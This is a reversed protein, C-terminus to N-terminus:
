GVQRKATLRARLGELPLANVVHRAEVWGRRATGVAFLMHRGLLDARHCDGDVSVLAGAAIARRAMAGDMDLHGPAGDIELVTGTEVAADFLRPEDLAYGERGPVLRNTPHTVIQVFPNRMARIYRDTLEASSHGAMDHLSALVVDLRELVADPFDLSGDPLIDVESGQLITLAPHQERAAAVAEMQRQLRDVDLGRAIASSQSHDTIAVYEYGLAEAALLMTELPDRGDSWDTHMHLDGRIQEHGILRPLERRAAAEVEGAGERLEPAVPALDLAAYLDAESPIARARGEADVLADRTLTLGLSAARQRVQSVHAASGTLCVLRAVFSEPPVIHLTLEAQEFRVAVKDRAVHLVASIFPLALLDAITRSVDRSAVLVELNGTVAAFRRFSGTAVIREIGSVADRITTLLPDLLSWARGLPTRPRTAAAPAIAARARALLTPDIAGVFEPDGLRDRLEGLSIAGTLRHLAAIDTIDLSGGAALRRLDQPVDALAEGVASEAGIDRIRALAERVAGTDTDAPDGEGSAFRAAVRSLDASEAHRGRIAAIAAMLSLSHALALM